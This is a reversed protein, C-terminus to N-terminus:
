APGPYSWACGAAPHAQRTRLVCNKGDGVQEDLRADVGEVRQHDLAVRGSGIGVGHDVVSHGGEVHGTGAEHALVVARALDVAHLFAVEDAQGVAETHAQHQAAPQQEEPPLEERKEGGLRVDDIGAHLADHDHAQGVADRGKHVAGDGGGPAKAFGHYRGDDNNHPGADEAHRPDVRDEGAEVGNRRQIQEVGAGPRQRAKGFNDVEDVAVFLRHFNEILLRHRRLLTYQLCTLCPQCRM